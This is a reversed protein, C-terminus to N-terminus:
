EIKSHFLDTGHINDHKNYFGESFKNAAEGLIELYRDVAAQTKADKFYDQESMGSIFTEIGIIADLMDLIILGEPRESM